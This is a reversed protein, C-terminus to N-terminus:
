HRTLCSLDQHVALLVQVEVAQLAAVVAEVVTLAGSGSPSPRIIHLVVALASRSREPGLDVALTELGICHLTAQSM